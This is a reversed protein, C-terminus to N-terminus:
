PDPRNNRMKKLLGALARHLYLLPLWDLGSGRYKHRMYDAAPFTTERLFRLKNRSGSIACFDMWQQRARSGGLYRAVPETPGTAALALAALVPEPYVTDFCGGARAMAELCIARLGKGAALRVFEDWEVPTLRGALLHIDYLWILRDGGYHAVGDVYYPNHKHSGRHMCALLLSHVRSPILAFPGLSPAAQAQSLLEEHTFLRSLLESNNIRWHLDLTHSEGGTDARTYCGQYSVLEGSVAIDREFGLELLAADVRARTQSEIILDTDGRTRLVPAPYLSYALATGKLLIPQVGAKALAALTAMIQRQHQLEWIALQFAQDRFHQLLAPPWDSLKLLENLLPQVGHYASRALLAEHLGSAPADPWAPCEGRLAACM